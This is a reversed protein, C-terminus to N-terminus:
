ERLADIKAKLQDCSSGEGGTVAREWSGYMPNPLMFWRTGWWSRSRAVIEDREAVSKDRANTFDNLDDGIMLLVRHSSAVWERRLSKDSNAWATREARTLVTDPDDSVPYGLRELNRRTEDEEEVNRNTIYFIRVGKDRAYTLFEAAGPTAAAGSEGTWQEWAESDYTKGERIVRGQFRTNDIVTEDIDVIVAPPQPLPTDANDEAAAVWTKDALAADLARKANAFTQLTTARYEASSQMWLTANLLANGPVCQGAVAPKTEPVAAKPKPEERPKEEEKVKPVAPCPKTKEVIVPPKDACPPCGEPRVRDRAFPGVCSVASLAFLALVAAAPKRM